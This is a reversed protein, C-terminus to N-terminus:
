DDAQANDDGLIARLKQKETPNLGVSEEIIPAWYRLLKALEDREARLKDMGALKTRLHGNENAVAAREPDRYPCTDPYECGCDDDVTHETTECTLDFLAMGKESM